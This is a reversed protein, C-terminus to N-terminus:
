TEENIKFGPPLASMCPLQDIFIEEINNKERFEILVTHVKAGAELRVKWGKEGM